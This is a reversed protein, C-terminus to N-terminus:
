AHEGSFGRYNLFRLRRAKEQADSAPEAGFKKLAVAQAVVQWSTSEEQPARAVTEESLAADVGRQRLEATIRQPGYGNLMRQRAYSRAFREDSQLDEDALRDLAEAIEERTFRSGLKRLLEAYSHERRALLNMAANRPSTLMKKM